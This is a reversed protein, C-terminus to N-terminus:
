GDASFRGTTEAYFANREACTRTFVFDQFELQDADLERWIEQLVAADMRCLAQAVQEREEVEAQSLQRGEIAALVEAQTPGAEGKSCATATLAMGLVVTILRLGFSSHM